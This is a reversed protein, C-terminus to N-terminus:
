LTFMAERPWEAARRFMPSNACLTACCVRAAWYEPYFGPAGPLPVALDPLLALPACRQWWCRPPAWWCAAMWNTSNGCGNGPETLARCVAGFLTWVSVCPYNVVVAVLTVWAAGALLPWDPPLFLSAVSAMVWAKPNSGSFGPQKGAKKAAAATAEGAGGPALTRWAMWCCIRAALWALLQIAALALTCIVSGLGLCM